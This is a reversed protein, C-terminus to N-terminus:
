QVCLPGHWSGEELRFPPRKQSSSLHPFPQSPLKRVAGDQLALLGVLHPTVKFAAVRGDKKDVGLDLVEVGPGVQQGEGCDM